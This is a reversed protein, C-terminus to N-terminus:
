KLIGGIVIIKPKYLEWTDGLIWYGENTNSVIIFPVMSETSIELITEISGVKHNGDAVPRKCQVKDGVKAISM